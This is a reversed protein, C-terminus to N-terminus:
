RAAYLAYDIAQEMSITQGEVWSAEDLQSRAATLYPERWADEEPIHQFGVAM